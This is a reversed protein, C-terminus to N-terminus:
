LGQEDAFAVLRRVLEEPRELQPVHGFGPVVDVRAVPPLYKRFYDVSEYPLLKESEGWLLLTPVRLEALADPGFIDLTRAEGLVSKVTASGYVKILFWAFLLAPIPARHFLRRTIARASKADRVELSRVLAELREPKVKAGAPAVLVLACLLEPARLGLALAMAGGLSNGAVLAPARTRQAVFELLVDLQALLTLPGSAPEPSFGSGPLDPVLVRSFRDTLSFM